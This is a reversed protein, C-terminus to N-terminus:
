NSKSQEHPREAAAIEAMVDSKRGERHGLLGPLVYDDPVEACDARAAEFLGLRLECQARLLHLADDFFDDNFSLAQTFDDIAPQLRRLEMLLLGRTWYSGPNDPKLAVFKDLDALADDGRHMACYIRARYVYGLFSGPDEEILAACQRLGEDFRGSEVFKRMPDIQKVFDDPFEDGM